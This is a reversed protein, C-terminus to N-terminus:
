DKYNPVYNMFTDIDDNYYYSSMINNILKNMSIDNKFCYCRYYNYLDEPVRLDIRRIKGM